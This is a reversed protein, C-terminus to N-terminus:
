NQTVMARDLRQEIVIRNGEKRRWTYPHGILPLDFLGCEVIM